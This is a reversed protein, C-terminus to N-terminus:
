FIRVGLDLCVQRLGWALRAPDVLATGDRLWVGGLYTPSNVEARVADADLLDAEGGHEAALAAAEALGDVQWPQTAVALEGTREWACDIAYEHITKEIGALNQRGLRELTALEGPF